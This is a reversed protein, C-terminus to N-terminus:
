VGGILDKKILIAPQFGQLFRLTNIICGYALYLADFNGGLYSTFKAVSADHYIPYKLLISQSLM